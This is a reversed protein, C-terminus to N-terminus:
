PPTFEGNQLFLELYNNKKKAVTAKGGTLTTKPLLRRSSSERKKMAWGRLTNDLWENATGNKHRLLLDVKHRFFADAINADLSAKVM